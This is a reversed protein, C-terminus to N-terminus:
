NRTIEKEITNTRDAVWADMLRIDMRGSFPSTDNTASCEKVDAARATNKLVLKANIGGNLAVTILLVPTINIAM